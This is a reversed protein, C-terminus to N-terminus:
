SLLMMYPTAEGLIKLGAVISYALCTYIGIIVDRCRAFPSGNWHNPPYLVQQTPPMRTEGAHISDRGAASGAPCVGMCAHVTHVECCCLMGYSITGRQMLVASGHTEPCPKSASHQSASSTM